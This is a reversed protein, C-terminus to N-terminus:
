THSDSYFKVRETQYQGREGRATVEDIVAYAFELEDDFM